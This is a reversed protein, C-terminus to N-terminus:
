KVKNKQKTINKHSNNNNLQMKSNKTTNAGLPFIRPMVINDNIKIDNEFNSEKLNQLKLHPKLHNSIPAINNSTKKIKRTYREM